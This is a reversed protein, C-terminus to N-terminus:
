NNKKKNNKIFEELEDFERDVFRNIISVSLTATGVGSLLFGGWALVLSDLKGIVSKGAADFSNSTFANTVMAMSDLPSVEEVIMTFIFSVVVITFLLLITIGLGNNETYKVFKRYYIMMFYLYGIIHFIDYWVLLTNGLAIRFISGFPILLFLLIYDKYSKLTMNLALYVSVIIDIIFIYISGEGWDFILYLDLILFVIMMILYFLQELYVVKEQPFYELPNIFKSDKYEPNTKFYNIIYKGVFVLASFIGITVVLQIILVLLNGTDM